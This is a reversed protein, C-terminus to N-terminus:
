RKPTTTWRYAKAVAADFERHLNALWTRRENDLNTLTYKKLDRQRAASVQQTVELTSESLDKQTTLLRGFDPVGDYRQYLAFITLRQQYLTAANVVTTNQVGEPTNGRSLAGFYVANADWGLLGVEAFGDVAVGMSYLVKNM